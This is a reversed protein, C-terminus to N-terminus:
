KGQRSTRGQERESLGIESAVRIAASRPLRRRPVAASVELEAQRGLDTSRSDRRRARRTWESPLIELAKAALEGVGLDDRREAEAHQDAPPGGERRGLDQRLVADARLLDLFAGHGRRFETFGGFCREDSRGTGLAVASVAALASRATGHSGLSGRSCRMDDHPLFVESREGFCAEEGPRTKQSGPSTAVPPPAPNLSFAPCSIRSCLLGTAPVLAFGIPIVGPTVGVPHAANMLFLLV